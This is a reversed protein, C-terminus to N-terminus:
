RGAITIRFPGALFHEVTGRIAPGWPREKLNGTDDHRRILFGSFIEAFKESLM